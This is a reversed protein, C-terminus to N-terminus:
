YPVPAPPSVTFTYNNGSGKFLLNLIPTVLSKFLGLPGCNALGPFTTSGTFSLQGDGLSSVPGSFNLPFTVPTSTQCSGGLSVNIGLLGVSKMQLTEQATGNIHLNGSTDLSATGTAPGDQVLGVTATLPIGLVKLKTTYTPVATTADLLQQTTLDTAGSFTSGAPLDLTDGLTKLTLSGNLTWQNLSVVFDGGGPNATSTPPPATDSCDSPPSQGALRNSLWSIVQPAAQFQTAIHESPYLVFEDPVGESCYQQKLAIDQALPVIEDAQGHYQYVPVPIKTTGLQQASIAANIAPMAELQALTQGSATYSDIDANEFGLLTQFVCQSKITATAAAGTANELASLNLASPYQDSLGLIAMAAFGAAVNDNLYNATALLDAPIGGAAVGVLKMSPDYAPQLQGAWAAAQGGLSYGWIATQTSPNLGTGPIQDAAKDADLVAHAEAAGIGFLTQSGTTYGQYDTLVVAWGQQLLAVINATEYETGAALQASPACSEALGQTGAAYDIVPRTGSGTWAATPVIVTGTSVDAHGLADSTHYLIDWSSVSPASSGLSLIEPRYWILTGASGSPLPSPPTYFAAGAPGTAPAAAASAVFALSALAFLAGWLVATARLRSRTM